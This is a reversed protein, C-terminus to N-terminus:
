LRKGEDYADTRGQLAKQRGKRPQKIPRTSRMRLERRQLFLRTIRAEVCRRAARLLRPSLSFTLKLNVEDVLVDGPARQADEFEYKQQAAL